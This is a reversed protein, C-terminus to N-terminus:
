GRFWTGGKVAFEINPRSLQAAFLLSGVAERYSVDSECDSTNKSLHLRPEAPVASLKANQMCFRELIKNIYGSQCIKLLRRERDRKIELGFFENADDITIQFINKLENLLSDIASKSERLIWGDDVYLALYVTFNHAEDVFVCKDSNTNM